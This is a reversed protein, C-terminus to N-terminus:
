SRHITLFIDLHFLTISYNLCSLLSLFCFRLGAGNVDKFRPNDVQVTLLKWDTEEEDILAFVGLIKVHHVTGM